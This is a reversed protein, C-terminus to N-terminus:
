VLDHLLGALLDTFRTLPASTSWEGGAGWPLTVFCVHPPEARELYEYVIPQQQHQKDGRLRWYDNLLSFVNNSTTLTSQTNNACRQTLNTVLMEIAENLASEDEVSRHM